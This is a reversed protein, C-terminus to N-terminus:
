RRRAWWQNYDALHKQVDAPAREYIWQAPACYRVLCPPVPDARDQSRVAYFLPPATLIYVVPAVFM